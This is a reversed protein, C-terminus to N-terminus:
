FHSPYFAFTTKFHVSVLVCRYVYFFFSQPQQSFCHLGQSNHYAPSWGFRFSTSMTYSKTFVKVTNDLRHHIFCSARLEEPRPLECISLSYLSSSQNPVVVSSTVADFYSSITLHSFSMSIHLFMFLLPCM